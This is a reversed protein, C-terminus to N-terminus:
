VLCVKLKFGSEEPRGYGREVAVLDLEVTELDRLLLEFPQAGQLTAISKLYGRCSACTEVKLIEGGDEPVLSGLREHEREGCYVCYLWQVEWAAACRGCRLQRSRDLGRREALIPWAACIPCYGHHWSPPVRDALLRGCSQLLPLAALHAVSTLPGREVDAADALAALETLDQRVAAVILAVADAVSPRYGRLSAADTLHGVAATSALRRVLRQAAGPDVKLTRGNLLPADDSGALGDGLEAEDLPTCWGRDDLARETESLLRFWAHWEPRQRELEALRAATDTRLGPTTRQM